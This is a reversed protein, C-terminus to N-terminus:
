YGEFIYGLARYTKLALMIIRSAPRAPNYIM